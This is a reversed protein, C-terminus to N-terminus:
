FVDAPDVKKVKGVALMGSAVCMVVTLGLILAFRGPTVVMPLGTMETLLLYTGYAGIVNFARQGQKFDNAIQSVM